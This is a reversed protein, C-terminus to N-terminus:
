ADTRVYRRKLRVDYGDFPGRGRGAPRHQEAGHGNGGRHARQGHEAVKRTEIPTPPTTTASSTSGESSIRIARRRPLVFGTAVSSSSTSKEAVVDAIM